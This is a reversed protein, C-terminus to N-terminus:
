KLPDANPDHEWDTVLWQFYQVKAFSDYASKEGAVEFKFTDSYKGGGTYPDIVVCKECVTLGSAIESVVMLSLNRSIIEGWKDRQISWDPSAFLISVVKRDKMIFGDFRKKNDFKENEMFQQIINKKMENDRFNEELRYIYAKGIPARDPFPNKSQVKQGTKWNNVEYQKNKLEELEAQAANEQAMRAEYDAKARKQQEEMLSNQKKGGIMGKLGGLGFQADAATSLTFMAAIAMVSIKFTQKM